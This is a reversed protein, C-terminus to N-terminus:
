SRTRSLAELRSRTDWGLGELRILLARDVRARVGIEIVKGGLIAPGGDHWCFLLQVPDLPAVPVLCAVEASTPGLALIRAPHAEVDFHKGRVLRLRAELPRALSAIGLALPPPESPAQNRLGRVEWMRTVSGVGKAEAEFPGHVVLRDALARRTADSVLVQGAVAFSEIRAALNVPHGVVGYKIRRPSGMNGVVAPGGSIGVGMELPPWGREFYDANRAQRARQMELACGVARAAHDDGARPAGFVAFLNDGLFDVVYGGHRAVISALIDLHDNLVAVVEDPKMSEALATFGRLDCFLLTVERAEGRLAAEHGSAITERVIEEPAHRAFSVLSAKMRDAAEQVRAIEKVRSTPGVRPEVIFRAMRDLAGAVADLPRAIRRSLLAALVAAVVLGPGAVLLARLPQLDAFGKRYGYLVLPGATAALLGSVLTVIAVPLSVKV